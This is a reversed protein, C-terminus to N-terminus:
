SATPYQDTAYTSRVWIGTDWRQDLQASFLALRHRGGLGISDLVGCLLELWIVVNRKM